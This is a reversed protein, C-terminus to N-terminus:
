LAKLLFLEQPQQFPPGDLFLAGRDRYGLKRYFHQAPEDVQTSTLVMTYGLTRMEAEWHLVAQRGLGKGRSSPQLYLLTLFPISDWFLNYRMVGVPRDGDCLVYGRRDRVKAGFESEPLHRDLAFWFSRDSERAYRIVFM